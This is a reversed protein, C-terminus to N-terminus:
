MYITDLGKTEQKHPHPSYTIGGFFKVDMLHLPAKDPGSGM